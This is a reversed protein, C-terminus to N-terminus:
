MFSNSGVNYSVSDATWENAGQSVHVNGNFSAVRTDWSFDVKDATIALGTRSFNAGGDIKARNKTGYVYVSDGTFYIDDQNVTIGGAGWVELTALNVKAQGATIVRNRVEIYVNGKLVYLGTNVDFYTHDATVVPKSAFATGTILLLVLLASFFIRNYKM